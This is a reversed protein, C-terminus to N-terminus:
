LESIAEKANRLKKKGEFHLEVEELAALSEALISEKKSSPTKVKLELLIAEWEKKTLFIGTMGKKDKAIKPSISKGGIKIAISV